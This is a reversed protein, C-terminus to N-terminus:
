TKPEEARRGHLRLADDLHDANDYFRNDNTIRLKRKPAEVMKQYLWVKFESSKVETQKSWASLRKLHQIFADDIKAERM